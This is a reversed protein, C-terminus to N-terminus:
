HIGPAREEPIICSLGTTSWEGGDHAMTVFSPFNYRKEGEM